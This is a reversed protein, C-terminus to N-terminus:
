AVQEIFRLQAQIYLGGGDNPYVPTAVDVLAPTSLVVTGDMARIQTVTDGEAITDTSPVLLIPLSLLTLAGGIVERTHQWKFHCPGNLVPPVQTYVPLNWADVSEDVGPTLPNDAVALRPMRDYHHWFMQSVAQRVMSADGASMLVPAPM